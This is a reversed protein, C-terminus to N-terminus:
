WHPVYSSSNPEVSSPGSCDRELRRSIIHPYDALLEAWTLEPIETHQSSEYVTVEDECGVQFTLIIIGMALGWPCPPFLPSVLVRQLLRELRWAAPDLADTRAKTVRVTVGWLPRGIPPPHCCDASGWVVSHEPAEWWRGMHLTSTPKVSLIWTYERYMMLCQIGPFITISTMSFVTLKWESELDEEPHPTWHLAASLAWRTIEISSNLSIMDVQEIVSCTSTLFKTTWWSGCVIVYLEHTQRRARHRRAISNPASANQPVLM